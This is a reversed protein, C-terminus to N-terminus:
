KKTAWFIDSIEKVKAQLDAANKADVTQKSKSAAKLTQWVLEHLKPHKELHEPKFYDGWLIAVERKCIEAHEEKVKTMRSLEALYGVDTKPPGLAEIKEVMKAVTQAALTAAHPDYIGCPIDCHAHATRSPALFRSIVM